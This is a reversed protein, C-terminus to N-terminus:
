QEATANRLYLSRYVQLYVRFREFAYVIALAELEFSHYRSEADTTRKSYYFVPHLKSDIQRQFLIAGFGSANADTQLETYAMPSYISLVPAEILKNKLLEFANIENPGFSFMVNKRIQQVLPKAFMAYDKIFRRLYGTLGLFRHLQKANVPQPYELVARIHDDSVRIGEASVSYRLYKLETALIKGKDIRLVLNNVALLDLVERLIAIHEVITASAILLDDIYITVEGKELFKRFIQSIYKQFVSPANVLGM